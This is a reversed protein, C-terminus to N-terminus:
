SARPHHPHHPLCGPTSPTPAGYRVPTGHQDQFLVIPHTAEEGDRGGLDGFVSQGQQKWDCAVQGARPATRTHLVAGYVRIALRVAHRVLIGGHPVIVSDGIREVAGDAVGGGGEVLCLHALAPWPTCLQKEEGQCHVHDM